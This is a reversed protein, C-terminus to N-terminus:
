HMPLEFTTWKQTKPRCTSYTDLVKGIAVSTDYTPLVTKQVTKLPDDTCGSLFGTTIAAIALCTKKVISEKLPLFPM